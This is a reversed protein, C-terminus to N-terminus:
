RGGPPQPPQAPRTPPVQRAPQAAQARQALRMHYAWTAQQWQRMRQAQDKAARRAQQNRKMRRTYLLSGIFALGFVVLWGAQSPAFLVVLLIVLSWFVIYGVIRRKAFDFFRGM